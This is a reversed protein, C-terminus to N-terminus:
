LLNIALKNYVPKKYLQLKELLLVQLSTFLKLWHSLHISHLATSDSCRQLIVTCNYNIYKPKVCIIIM